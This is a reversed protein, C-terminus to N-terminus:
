VGVPRGGGPQVAEPHGAGAPHGAGPRVTSAPEAGGAAGIMFMKLVEVAPRLPKKAGVAMAEFICTHVIGMYASAAMEPDIQRLAGEAVGQRMLEVLHTRLRRTQQGIRAAIEDTFNTSLRSRESLFLRFFGEREEFAKFMAETLAQIREQFRPAQNAANLLEFFHEWQGEIVRLYLDDKSKFFQYVGGVSFGAQKAIDRIATAHFGKDSFVQEAAELLGALDAERHRLRRQSSGTNM